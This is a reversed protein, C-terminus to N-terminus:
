STPLADHLRFLGCSVIRSIARSFYADASFTTLCRWKHYRLSTNLEVFSPFFVLQCVYSSHPRVVINSWQKWLLRIGVTTNRVRWLRVACAIERRRLLIEVFGLFCHALRRWVHCMALKANSSASMVVAGVASFRPCTDGSRLVAVVPELASGRM